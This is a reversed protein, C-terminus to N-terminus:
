QIPEDLFDNLMETSKKWNFTNTVYKFGNEAINNSLEDEKLIHKLLLYFKDQIHTLNQM